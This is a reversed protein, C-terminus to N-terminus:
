PALIKHPLLESLRRRGDPNLHAHDYFLTDELMDRVDIVPIAQGQASFRLAQDFMADIKPSYLSRYDSSEPMLLCLVRSGRQRFRHVLDALARVQPNLPSYREPRLGSRLGEAQSALDAAAARISGYSSNVSWPDDLPRYIADMQLLQRRNLALRAHHVAMIAWNSLADNHRGFWTLLGAERIASIVRGRLLAAALKHLDAHPVVQEEDQLMSKHIGLVVVSPSLRSSTLTFSYQQLQTLNGGSAGLILWSRHRPDHMGLIASDLDERVSSMGLVAVLYAPNLEGDTQMREVRAIRRGWDDLLNSDMAPAAWGLHESFVTGLVTDLCLLALALSLGVVLLPKSRQLVGPSSSSM